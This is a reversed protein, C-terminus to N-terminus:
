VFIELCKKLLGSNISPAIVVSGHSRYIENVKSVQHM